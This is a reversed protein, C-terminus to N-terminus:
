SWRPSIPQWISRLLADIANGLITRVAFCADTRYYHQISEVPAETVTPGWQYSHVAILDPWAPKRQRRM